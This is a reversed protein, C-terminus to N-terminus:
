DKDDIDYSVFMRLLKLAKQKNMMSGCVDCNPHVGSDSPYLNCLPITAGMDHAEEYFACNISLSCTKSIIVM